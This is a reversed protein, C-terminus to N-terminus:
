TPNCNTDAFQPDRRMTAYDSQSIRIKDVQLAFPCSVDTGIKIANNADFVYNWTDMTPTFVAVETTCDNSTPQLALISDISECPAPNCVQGTPCGEQAHGRGADAVWLAVTLGATVLLGPIILRSKM